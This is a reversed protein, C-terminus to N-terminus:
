QKQMNPTVGVPGYASNGPYPLQADLFDYSDMFMSKGDATLVGYYPVILENLSLNIGSFNVRGGDQSWKVHVVQTPDGGYVLTKGNFVYTATSDAGFSMNAVEFYYGNPTAWHGEVSPAQAPFLKLTGTIAYLPFAGGTMTSKDASITYVQPGNFQAEGSPFAYKVTIDTGGQANTAVNTVKGKVLSYANNLLIYTFTSMSSDKNFRISIPRPYYGNGANATGTYETNSFSFTGTTIIPPPPPGIKTKQCSNCFLFAYTM